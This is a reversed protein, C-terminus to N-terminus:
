KKIEKLYLDYAGKVRILYDHLENVDVAGEVPSPTMAYGSSPDVVFFTPVLSSIFRSHINEKDQNVHVPYYMTNIYKALSENTDIDHYEKSCHSCTSQGVFLLIPKDIKKLQLGRTMETYSFWAVGTKEEENNIVTKNQDSKAIIEATKFTGDVSSAANLSLMGVLIMFTVKKM